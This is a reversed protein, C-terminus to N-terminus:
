LHELLTEVLKRKNADLERYKNILEAEANNLDYARVPEVPRSENTHGILYDVSTHFFDAMMILTTIDPEINHNEYKNISQQSVGIANALQQQSINHQKRLIKLNTVM